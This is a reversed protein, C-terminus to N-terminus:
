GLGVRLWFRALNWLQIYFARIARSIRGSCTFQVYNCTSQVYLYKHGLVQVSPYKPNSLYIYLPKAVGKGTTRSLKKVM